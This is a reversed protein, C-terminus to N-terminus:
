KLAVKNAASLGPGPWCLGGEALIVEEKVVHSASCLLGTGNECGRCPLHM